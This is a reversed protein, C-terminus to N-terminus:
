DPKPSASVAPSQLLPLRLTPNQRCSKLSGSIQLSYCSLFFIVTFISTVATHLVPVPATLSMATIKKCILLLRLFSCSFLFNAATCSTYLLMAGSGTMRYRYEREHPSAAKANGAFGCHWFGSDDRALIGHIKRLTVPLFLVAGVSCKWERRVCM